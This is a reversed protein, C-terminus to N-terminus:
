ILRLLLCQQLQPHSLLAYLYHVSVTEELEVANGAEVFVEVLIAEEEEKAKREKGISGVQEKM